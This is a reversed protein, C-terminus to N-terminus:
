LVATIYIAILYVGGMVFKKYDTNLLIHINPHNLINQIMQTYGEKPLAQYKHTFYRDDRNSRIPIRAVIESPLEECPIGWQKETYRKFFAQYFESGIQSEIVDRVNKEQGLNTRHTEFYGMVDESTYSTGLYGNVTDLNIPMPYFKGNVFIKVKHQYDEWETFRSLYDWVRKSETRFIHPGYLHVLIGDENRYDYCYGGIHNRREVILIHHNKEEALRRAIIAGAIGCGVIISQFTM